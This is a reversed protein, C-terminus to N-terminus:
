DELKFLIGSAKSAAELAEKFTHRNSAREKFTEDNWWKPKPLTITKNIPGNSVSHTHPEKHDCINCKDSTYGGCQVEATSVKGDKYRPDYGAGGNPDKGAEREALYDILQNLRLSTEGSGRVIEWVTLKEPLKM